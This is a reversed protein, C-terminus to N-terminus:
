VFRLRDDSAFSALHVNCHTCRHRRSWFGMTRSQSAVEQMQLNFAVKVWCLNAPNVKILLLKLPTNFCDWLHHAECFGLRAQGQCSGPLLIWKCEIQIWKTSSRLAKLLIVNQKFFIQIYFFFVVPKFTNKGGIHMENPCRPVNDINVNSLIAWFTVNVHNFCLVQM